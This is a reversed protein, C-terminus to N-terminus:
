RVSVILEMMFVMMARARRKEGAAANTGDVRLAAHAHEGDEAKERLLARVEEEDLGVLVDARRDAVEVLDAGDVGDEELAEGEGDRERLEVAREVAPHLRRLLAGPAVAEERVVVVRTVDAEIREAELRGIRRLELHHGRLLQLVAAEGHERDRAEDRLLEDVALDDRSVEELEADLSHVRARVDNHRASSLCRCHKPLLCFGGITRMTNTVRGTSFM